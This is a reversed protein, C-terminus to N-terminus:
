KGGQRGETGWENKRAGIELLIDGVGRGWWVQPRLDRFPQRHRIESDWQLWVLCDKVTYTNLPGYWILYIYIYIYIYIQEKKRRKKREMKVLKWILEEERQKKAYFLINGM